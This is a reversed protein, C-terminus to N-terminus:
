KVQCKTVAECFKFMEEDTMDGKAINAMFSVFQVNGKIYGKSCDIRDLSARYIKDEKNKWGKTSDPLILTWGTHPCVGEQEEWLKKLYELDVEIEKRRNKNNVVKLFWRFPTYADRRNNYHGILSSPNGKSPTKLHTQKATCSISCFMKRGKKVSSNYDYKSRLFKKGCFTCSLEVQPMKSM